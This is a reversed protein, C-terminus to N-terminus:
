RAVFEIRRNRFRGEETDNGAIPKTDGYGKAALMSEPVGRQILYNRVADARQQSLTLNAAADGTNDTHGDIEMTMGAPATKMVEAAKDLFPKSSDPIEASGTSFNIIELNLANTLDTPSYGPKLASLANSAQQSAIRVQDDINFSAKLKPRSWFWFLLLAALVALVPWLVRHLGPREAGPVVQRTGAAAMSPVGSLYSMAEQPLRSPITGGPTLSHVLKPIMFGLASAATAVSLGSRSAINSVTQPGLAEQVRDASLPSTSAGSVWGSVTDSLGARRFRDLFGNLGNHEQIISLLSSVLSKATTSGFGFKDGVEDVLLDIAGM